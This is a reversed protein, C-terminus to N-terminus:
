RMDRKYLPSSEQWVMQAKKQLSRFHLVFPVDRAHVIPHDNGDQADFKVTYAVKFKNCRKGFFAKYEPKLDVIKIERPTFNYSGVQLFISWDSGEGLVVEYSSLVYFIIYHKNEELQRRLLMDHQESTKGHRNSYLDVYATRVEDSLWLCDFIGQTSLQDYFALSQLYPKIRDTYTDINEAQNFNAKAWNVVMKCGPLTVVLLAISCYAAM